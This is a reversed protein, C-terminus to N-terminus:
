FTEPLGTIGPAAGSFVPDPTDKGVGTTTSDNHYSNHDSFVRSMAGAAVGQLSPVYHSYTDLTLTISSHGLAESM